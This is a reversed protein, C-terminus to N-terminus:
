HKIIIIIKIKASPKNHTPAKIQEAELTNEVFSKSVAAFM